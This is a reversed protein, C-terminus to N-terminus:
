KKKDFSHIHCISLGDAALVLDTQRVVDRLENSWDTDNFNLEMVDVKPGGILSANRKINGRILNLIGGIDIDTCVIRKRSYIAAAITSLGVGSGVELVYSNAFQQRHHFLFDALVLAGRWVQLGVLRLDTSKLHEIEISGRKRRQVILDGDSDVKTQADRSIDTVPYTFSFLSM